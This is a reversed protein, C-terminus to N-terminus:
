DLSKHEKGKGLYIPSGFHRVKNGRESRAPEGYLGTLRWCSDNNVAVSVDIHFRSMSMLKVDGLNKWFLAVGGSKGMPEVVIFGDYGLKSCLREM